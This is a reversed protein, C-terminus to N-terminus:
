SSHSSVGKTLMPCDLDNNDLVIHARSKPHCTSLYLKQGPMYRRDFHERVMEREEAGHERRYREWNRQWSAEFTVDVFIVVDWHSRLDDRQLFIGDLLLIANEPAHQEPRHVRRDTRWDFVANTYRGDGDPGLPELLKATLADRDYSDHFFGEPSLRGRRYRIAQPHHFGDVSARIVPRGMNVLLPTLEDALTTKGAGDVGDIAVRVTHSRNVQAIASAIRSLQEPRTRMAGTYITNSEITDNSARQKGTVVFSVVFCPPRLVVSASVTKTASKASM